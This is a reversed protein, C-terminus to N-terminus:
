EEMDYVLEKKCSTNVCDAWTNRYDPIYEFTNSVKFEEHM